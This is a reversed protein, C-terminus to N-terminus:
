QRACQCRHRHPFLWINTDRIPHDPLHRQRQPHQNTDATPDLALIGQSCREFQYFADFRGAHISAPQLVSQFPPNEFQRMGQQFADPAANSYGCKWRAKTGTATSRSPKACAAAWTESCITSPSKITARPIGIGTRPRVLKLRM